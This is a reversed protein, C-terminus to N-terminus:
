HVFIKVLNRNLDIRNEIYGEAPSPFGAKIPSAFLPIDLCVGDEYKFLESIESKM